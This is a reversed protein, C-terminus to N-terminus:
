LSVGSVNTERRFKRASRFTLMRGTRLNTVEYRTGGKRYKNSNFTSIEDVRVTVLIGSVNARYYGGVKIDSKKM